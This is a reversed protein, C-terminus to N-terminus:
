LSCSSILYFFFCKLNGCYSNQIKKVKLPLFEASVLWTDCTQYKVKIQHWQDRVSLLFGQGPFHILYIEWTWKRKSGVIRMLMAVSDGMSSTLFFYPDILYYNLSFLCSFLYKKNNNNKKSLFFFFAYLFLLVKKPKRKKKSKKKKKKKIKQSPTPSPHEFDINFLTWNVSARLTDM